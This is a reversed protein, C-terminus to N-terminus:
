TPFLCCRFRHRLHRHHQLCHLHHTTLSSTRYIRHGLLKGRQQPCWCYWAHYNALYSVFSTPCFVFQVLLCRSSWQLDLITLPSDVVRNMQPCFIFTLVPFFYPIIFTFKFFIFLDYHTLTLTKYQLLNMSQLTSYYSIYTLSIAIFPFFNSLLVIKIGLRLTEHYWILHILVYM